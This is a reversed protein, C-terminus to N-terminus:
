NPAGSLERVLEAAPRLDHIRAVSEGAYLPGSDLLNPPGGEVAASPGLLPRDARQQKAVAGQRSMPILRLFPSTALQLARVRRPGRPNEPTLWREAAENWIVRHPARPWGAGFLETLVTERSEMLRQKYASIAGSEPTMLFRTGLVAADAGADLATRVDQADAIGGAVLVPYGPGLAARTRELLELAPTTGRVHGGSEVGQAIVGDAGATKAARAEEVSGCQHIWVRDTRRRPRGWFTVVADAQAAVDWHARRAFPLLLNVALPARGGLRERAAGLEARLADPAMIGITGLGGAGSVAAALEARALGGGMGAQVIPREVGLRELLESVGRELRRRRM